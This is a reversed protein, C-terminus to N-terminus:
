VNSWNNRTEQMLALVWNLSDQSIHSWPEHMLMELRVSGVTYIQANQEFVGLMRPPRSRPLPGASPEDPALGNARLDNRYDTVATSFFLVSPSRFTWHHCAPFLSLSFFLNLFLVPCDAM